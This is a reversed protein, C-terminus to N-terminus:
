AKKVGDVWVNSVNHGIEVDGANTLNIGHAENECAVLAPGDITLDRFIFDYAYNLNSVRKCNTLRCESVEVNRTGSGGSVYLFGFSTGDKGVNSATWGRVITKSFSGSGEIMFGAGVTRDVVNQDFVAEADDGRAIFKYGTGQIMVGEVRNSSVRPGSSETIIGTHGPSRVTNDHINPRISFCGGVGCWIGRVGEGGEVGTLDHVNNWAIEADTSEDVKVAAFPPGSQMHRINWAECYLVKPRTSKNFFVGQANGGNGDLRMKEVSSDTMGELYLMSSYPTNYAGSGIARCGGGVSSMLTIGTRNRLIIGARGIGVVGRIDFITNDHQADLWAQFAATDDGGHPTYSVVPRGDPTPPIPDPPIVMELNAVHVGCAPCYIATTSKKM